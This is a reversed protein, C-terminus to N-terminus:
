EDEGRLFKILESNADINNTMSKIRERSKITLGYEKMYSIVQAYYNKTLSVAPNVKSRGKRDYLLPGEKFLAESSKVYMDFSIMLMRMGGMDIDELISMDELRKIVLDMFEKTLPNINDPYDIKM